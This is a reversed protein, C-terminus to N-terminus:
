ASLDLTGGRLRLTRTALRAAEREDHTVYIVPITLAALMAEIQALLHERAVSDLASLPEDLLLLRPQSLLARAISARQAEGGSLRATRRDLLAGIGTRAIVDAREFPGPTARSAAYDLNQAVTLHQLLGAGQFVYGVHRRHAPVFRGPAQWTEDGCRITGAVRTLGALARLVATKGSGSPGLLATVGAGPVEFAVDIAFSRGIRGALSVALTV